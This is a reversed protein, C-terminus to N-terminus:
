LMGCGYPVTVVAVLLLKVMRASLLAIFWVRIGTLRMVYEFQPPGPRPSPELQERLAAVEDRLEKNKRLLEANETELTDLKPDPQKAHDLQKQLTKNERELKQNETHLTQNKTELSTLETGQFDVQTQLVQNQRIAENKSNMQRLFAVIFIVLVSALGVCIYKWSPSHQPTPKPTPPKPPVPHPKYIAQKQRIVDLLQLAPQYKADIRLATQSSKEAAGLDNMKLYVLSLGHHAEKFNPDLGIANKFEVVAANFQNSRLHALGQNYVAQAPSTKPLVAELPELQDVSLKCFEKLKSALHKVDSSLNELERFVDSQDPNKFDEFTFLLARETRNGFNNWLTPLEALAVLSLYIVLESFYDVKENAAGTGTMREPHQYEPLGVITDPHGRLAPVFVSDYDILKIEVDVGTRQLLINGDQLDGHSIQHAHLTDVMKQFEAAATKLCHTDHLNQKLFDCLTDGEVWEMRTIPYKDGNM